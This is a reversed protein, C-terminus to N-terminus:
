FQSVSEPTFRKTALRKNSDDYAIITVASGPKADLLTATYRNEGRYTMDERGLTVRHVDPSTIVTITTFASNSPNYVVQIHEVPNVIQFPLEVSTKLGKGDSSKVDKTIMLMYQKGVEYPTKPSVQVVDDDGVLRLKTPHEKKGDLVFVNGAMTSEDLPKSFRVEWKKNVDDSSKFNWEKAIASQSFTLLIIFMAM